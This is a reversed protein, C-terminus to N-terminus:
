VGSHSVRCVSEPDAEAANDYHDSQEDVCYKGSEALRRLHPSLTLEEICIGLEAAICNAFCHFVQLSICRVLIDTKTRDANCELPLEIGVHM